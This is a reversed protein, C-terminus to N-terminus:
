FTEHEEAFEALAEEIMTHHEREIFERDAARRPQRRRDGDAAARPNTGRRDNRQRRERKLSGDKDRYYGAPAHDSM